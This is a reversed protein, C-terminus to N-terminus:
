DHVVYYLPFGGGDDSFKLVGEKDEGKFETNYINMRRRLHMVM